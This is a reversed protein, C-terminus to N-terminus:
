YYLFILVIVFAQGVNCSGTRKMVVLPSTVLYIDTKMSTVAM